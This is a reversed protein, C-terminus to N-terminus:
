GRTLERALTVCQERIRLSEELHGAELHRNNMRFAACALPGPSDADQFQTKLSELASPMGRNSATKESQFDAIANEPGDLYNMALYLIDHADKPAKRGNPGGFANLKLVLLPGAEAVRISHEAKSGILSYGSIRISRFNKLAREIGPLASVPLGDDVIITGSGTGVKETLLDLFLEVEGCPRKFRKGNWAFGHMSLISRMSDYQGGSAGMSIGFDVDLTIPGPLGHSPPITMHRIALGGILVLEEQYRSLSDWATLLARQPLDLSDEPYGAFTDHKM